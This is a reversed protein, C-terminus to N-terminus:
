VDDLFRDFVRAGFELADVPVREDVGHFLATFDLDAPLRLPAFGYSRMGLKRFHKADTGGSMLYPAVIAEDDEALISRTMADVLDGDYPTEWPPQNSVYDISIDEGVLEALTAFFEDEYGPLFRGDIHASAETPIVNVKYGAGLMTPNCTNRIVAGMMRAAGGFEEVLAEANEPTAETGALEGVSALLTRMAPTLRVPWEHAGIRAVAAALSTVANEHNIMSGHGARGRATLRMWAMGKEAAEILYVRRGRITASFGGVEGVAETCGELEEAHQEVLVQAGLHGGAEEDATFCLTIPREPVRGARQRARVVALLMADFDKMDVAGRGWVYGDQVEGSFPDVRWDEAAAPVVDLHGHLLLGGRDSASGGWQAVVSTRGAESEYLRSEIGVEDLLTAVYEAAKREGPGEDSGYNSTDIRILERCLEVVEGAPDGHTDTM